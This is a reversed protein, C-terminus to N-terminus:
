RVKAIIETTGTTGAIQQIAPPVIFAMIELAVTYYM